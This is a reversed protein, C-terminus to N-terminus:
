RLGLLRACAGLPTNRGRGKRTEHPQQPEERRERDARGAGRARERLSGYKARRHSLPGDNRPPATKVRQARLSADPSTVMRFNAPGRTAKNPHQITKGAVGPWFDNQPWM